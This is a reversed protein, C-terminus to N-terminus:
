GVVTSLSGKKVVLFALPFNIIDEQKKPEMDVTTPLQCALM